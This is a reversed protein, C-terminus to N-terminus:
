IPRVQSNRRNGVAASAQDLLSTADVMLARVRSTWLEPLRTPPDLLHATPRERPKGQRRQEHASNSRSPPFRHPGTWSLEWRCFTPSRDPSEHRALIALPPIPELMENVRESMGAFVVSDFLSRSARGSMRGRHHRPGPRMLVVRVLAWQRYASTPSSRADKRAYVGVSSSGGM